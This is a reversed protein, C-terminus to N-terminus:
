HAAERSGVEGRDVCELWSKIKETNGSLIVFARSEAVRRDESLYALCKLATNYSPEFTKARVPPIVYYLLYLDNVNWIWILYLDDGVTCVHM